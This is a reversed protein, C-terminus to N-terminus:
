RLLSREKMAENREPLRRKFIRAEEADVLTLTDFERDQRGTVGSRHGIPELREPGIGKRPIEEHARIELAMAIGVDPLRDGIGLLYFEIRQGLHSTRRLRHE